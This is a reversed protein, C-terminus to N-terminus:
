IAIDQINNWEHESLEVVLGTQPEFFKVEFEGRASKDVFLNIAHKGGVDKSYSVYGFAITTKLGPSLKRHILRAFSMAFFAFDDCDYAEEAWISIFSGSLATAVEDAIWAETVLSYNNEVM